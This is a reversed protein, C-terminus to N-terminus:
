ARGIRAGVKARAGARERSDAFAALAMAEEHQGDIILRDVEARMNAVVQATRAAIRDAQPRTVQSPNNM